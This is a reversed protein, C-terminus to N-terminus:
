VGEDGLVSLGSDRDSELGLSGLGGRNELYAWRLMGRDQSRSFAKLSVKDRWGAFCQVWGVSDHGFVAFIMPIITVDCILTFRKLVFNFFQYASDMKSSEDFFISRGVGPLGNVVDDCTIAVVMSTLWMAVTAVVWRGVGVDVMNIRGVKALPAEV